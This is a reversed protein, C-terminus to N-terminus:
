PHIRPIFVRPLGKTRGCYVFSVRLEDPEIVVGTLLPPVREANGELTIEIRPPAPVAFSLDLRSPHVGTVTIPTGEALPDFTMGLSAEQYFAAQFVEDNRARARYDAPLCGRGRGFR